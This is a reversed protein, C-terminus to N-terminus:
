RLVERSEEILEGHCDYVWGTENDVIWADFECWDIFEPLYAHEVHTLAHDIADQKSDFSDFESTWGNGKNTWSRVTYRQQKM